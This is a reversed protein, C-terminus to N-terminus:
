RTKEHDMRGFFYNVLGLKRVAAFTKEFVDDRVFFILLVPVDIKWPKLTTNM